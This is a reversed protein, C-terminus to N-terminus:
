RGLPDPKDDDVPGIQGRRAYEALRAHAANLARERKWAELASQAALWNPQTVRKVSTNDFASKRLVDRGAGSWSSRGADLMTVRQRIEFDTM